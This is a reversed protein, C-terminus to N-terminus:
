KAKLWYEQDAPGFERQVWIEGYEGLDGDIDMAFSRNGSNYNNGDSYKNIENAGATANIPNGQSNYNFSYSMNEATVAAKMNHKDDYTYRFIGGKPDM